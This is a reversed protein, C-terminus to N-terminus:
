IEIHREALKKSKVKEKKMKVFQVIYTTLTTLLVVVMILAYPTLNIKTYISVLLFIFMAFTAFKGFINSPIVIDVNKYIFLGSIMMGFEKAVVFWLFWQNIRNTYTLTSLVSMVMFKDAIPDFMKGLKTIMNFKRAIFGDLVDLVMALIFVISAIIHANEITSMYVIPFVPVLFLRIGTLINPISVM